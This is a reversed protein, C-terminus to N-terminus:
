RGALSARLALIRQLSATAAARRLTGDRDGSALGAAAEDGESVKQGSCLILDMGARAALEARQSITGFGGLAGAELADTITVGRFGLRQRLEGSVITSSLGAPRRADLAPYTAWSVMILKVDASIAARYPLEDVNRITARSLKLTVPGADTDQARSAAGLGPFHKAVAAVGGGQLAKIFDAGLSSVIQPSMSYSRGFTDIFGGAQRYVDLVPALNVNMGAGRLNKAAGTGASAAGAAPHASEGVQRESALPQGPLRRVIGGEQDTMLLLPSRVPNLTSADAQDLRQIAARIQAQSSINGTFFVVGGAEGHRILWLLRAPPTLGRYSYIV